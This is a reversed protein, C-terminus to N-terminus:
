GPSGGWRVWAGTKEVLVDVSSLFSFDSSLYSGLFFAVDFIAVRDGGVGKASEGAELVGIRL